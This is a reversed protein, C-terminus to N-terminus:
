IDVDRPGFEREREGEMGVEGEREKKEEKKERPPVCM